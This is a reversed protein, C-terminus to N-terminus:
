EYSLGTIRPVYSWGEITVQSGSVNQFRVRATKGDFNPAITRTVLGTKAWAAQGWKFRGWKTQPEYLIVDESSTAINEGDKAFAINVAETDTGTTGRVEFVPWNCQIMPSGRFADGSLYTMSITDDHDLNGTDHRVTFGSRDGTFVRYTGDTHRVLAGCTFADAFNHRTWAWDVSYDLVWCTDMQTTNDQFVFIQNREPYNIAFQSRLSTVSHDVDVLSRIATDRSRSIAYGVQLATSGGAYIRPMGFQDVFFIYDGPAKHTTPTTFHVLTRHSQTGVGVILPNPNEIFPFLAGSSNVRTPSFIVEYLGNEKFCLLRDKYVIAGRLQGGQKQHVSVIDTSTLTGPAASNSFRLRDPFRTASEVTNGYFMYGRYEVVFLASDITAAGITSASLSSNIQICNNTDNACVVIDNLMAFSWLNNQGATITLAGTRDDWTGDLNDMTKVKTDGFGVLVNTGSSFAADYLGTMIGDTVFASSNLRSYGNRRSLGGIPTLNVNIAELCGSTPVRIGSNIPVMGTTNEYFDVPQAPIKPM